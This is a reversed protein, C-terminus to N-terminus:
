LVSTFAHSAWDAQQLYFEAKVPLKARKSPMKAEASPANVNVERFIFHAAQSFCWRPLLDWAAVMVHLARRAGASLPASVPRDVKEFPASKKRQGCNQQQFRLM